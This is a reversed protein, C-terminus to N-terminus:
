KYFEDDVIDFTEVYEDIIDLNVLVLHNVIYCAKADKALQMFKSVSMSYMEAGESYRVFRKNNTKKTRSDM